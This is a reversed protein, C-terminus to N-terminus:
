YCCGSCIACMFLISYHHYQFMFGSTSYHFRFGITSDHLRFGIISYYLSFSFGLLAVAPKWKQKANPEATSTKSKGALAQSDTSSLNSLTIFLFIM